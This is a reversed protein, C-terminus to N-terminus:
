ESLNNSHHALAASLGLRIELSDQSSQARGNELAQRVEVGLGRNDAVWNQYEAQHTRIFDHLAQLRADSDNQSHRSQEELQHFYSRTLEDQRRMDNQILGIQETLLRIQESGQLGLTQNNEYLAQRHQRESNQIEGRLAAIIQEYSGRDFALTDRLNDALIQQATHHSKVMRSESANISAENAAQAQAYMAEVWKQNLDNSPGHDLRSGIDQLSKSIQEYESRSENKLSHGPTPMNIDEMKIPEGKVAIDQDSTEPGSPFDPEDKVPTQVFSTRESDGSGARSKKKRSPMTPYGKKNVVSWGKFPDYNNPLGPARVSGPSIIKKEYPHSFSQQYKDKGSGRWPGIQRVLGYSMM